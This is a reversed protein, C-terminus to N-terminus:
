NHEDYLLSNNVCFCQLIVVVVAVQGPPTRRSLSYQQFRVFLVRFRISFATSCLFEELISLPERPSCDSPGLLRCVLSIEYLPVM